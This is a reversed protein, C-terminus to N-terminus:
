KTKHGKHHIDEPESVFLLPFIIDSICCPLWVALFLFILVVLYSLLNMHHAQAMIVHFVSAWTSLLVHGYHPFKTTPNFYAIAIGIVALSNVLLPREIFGAHMHLRPM